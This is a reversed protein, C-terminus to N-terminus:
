RAGRMDVNLVTVGDLKVSVTRHQTAFGPAEIVVEYSGEPLDVTYRGDGDATATVTTKGAVTIKAALPKGDFALVQGRLQGQRAARLLKIEIASPTGPVVRVEASGPQYDPATASVKIAGGDVTASFAGDDGSVVEIAPKSPQEITVAAGAIARGDHDVVHGTLQTPADPVRTPEPPPPPEVPRVIAAHEGRVGAYRVGFVARWDPTGFGNDLGLGGAAFIGLEGSIASGVGVLTEVAVLNRSVDHTPAAVSASWTVEAAGAVRAGLGARAFVEDGVVLGATAVRQRFLYGANVAGRVRGWAGSAAIAPAFTPGAERLYGTASGLPVGFAPELALAYADGRAIRLKAVLALDGLGSTPLAKMTVSDAAGSQYDVMDADVAIELRDWLAVSGVLATTLRRQVLADVATMQKDYVVLPDHEFGLWVATSWSGHDPVDASDVDLVAARDMGLHFREIGFGDTPAQAHAPAVLGVVAAVVWARHEVMGGRDYVV